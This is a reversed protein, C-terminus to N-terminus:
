DLIKFTGGHRVVRLSSGVVGSKVKGDSDASVQELAGEDNRSFIMLAGTGPDVIWYEAVGARSYISLKPGVDISATSPSLIEVCLAPLQRVPLLKPDPEDGPAFVSIDPRLYSEQGPFSVDVDQVVHFGKTTLKQWLFVFLAGSLHQHEYTGGPSMCPVGEILEWRDDEHWDLKEFEVLGM